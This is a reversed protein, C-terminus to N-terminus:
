RPQNYGQRARAAAKVDEDGTKACIDDCKTAIKNLLDKTLSHVPEPAAQLDKILSHLEAVDKQLPSAYSPRPAVPAVPTASVSPHSSSHSTTDSPKSM